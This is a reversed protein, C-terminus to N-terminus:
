YGYYLASGSLEMWELLIDPQVSQLEDQTLAEGFIAVGAAPATDALPAQVENFTLEDRWAPQIDEQVSDSLGPDAGPIDADAPTGGPQPIDETSGAPGAGSDTLGPVAFAAAIVLCLCAALGVWKVWPSRKKVPKESRELVDEDIANLSEYLDISNM